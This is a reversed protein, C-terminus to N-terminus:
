SVGLQMVYADADDVSSYDRAGRNTYGPVNATNNLDPWLPDPSRGNTNGYFNNYDVWNRYYNGIGSDDFGHDGNYTIQNNMIINACGNAASVLIGNGGNDSITCHAIMCDQGLLNIGASDNHTIECYMLTVDTINTTLWVGYVGCNNFSCYYFSIDGANLYAGHSNDSIFECGICIVGDGSNVIASGAGGTEHIQINVLKCAPSLMAVQTAHTGTLRLHSYFASGSFTMLNAEMDILPRDNGQPEDNRSANYGIVHHNQSNAATAWSVAVGPTYTGAKIHSVDYANHLVDLEVLSGLAGGLVGVGDNSNASACDRDLDIYNGGGDSGSGSVHYTGPTFNTGATIKLTNGVLAAVLNADETASYLRDYDLNKTEWDNTSIQAGDQQSYDIGSGGDEWGGSGSGAVRLEWIMKTPLAM